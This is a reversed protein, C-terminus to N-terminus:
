ELSLAEQYIGESIGYNYEHHVELAAGIIDYVIDALQIQRQETLM